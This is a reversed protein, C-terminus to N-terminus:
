VGHCQSWGHMCIHRADDHGFLLAGGTRWREPSGGALGATPGLCTVAQTDHSLSIDMDGFFLCASALLGGEVMLMGSQQPGNEALQKSNRQVDPAPIISIVVLYLAMAFIDAAMAAALLPGATLNLALAIAAFNM